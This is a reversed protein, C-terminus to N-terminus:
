SLSVEDGVLFAIPMSFKLDFIATHKVGPKSAAM